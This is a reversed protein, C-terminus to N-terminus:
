VNQENSEPRFFAYMFGMPMKEICFFLDRRDMSRHSEPESPPAYIVGDFSGEEV